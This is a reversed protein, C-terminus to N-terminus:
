ATRSMGVVYDAYFIYLSHLTPFSEEVRRIFDLEPFFFHSRFPSATISIHQTPPPSLQFQLEM